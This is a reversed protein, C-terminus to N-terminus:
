NCCSLKCTKNHKRNRTSRRLVPPSSFPAGASLSRAPSQPPLVVSDSSESVSPNTSPAPVTPMSVTSARTSLNTSAHPVPMSDNEPVVTMQQQTHDAILLRKNRLIQNGAQSLLLYSRGDNPRPVIIKGQKWVKDNLNDRYRVLQGPHFDVRNQVHQNYHQKMKTVRKELILKYKKDNDTVLQTSCTPVKTRLDRNFLLRAPSPLDTAIPTNRYNLLALYMDESKYLMDKVTKIHREIFGNSQPYGASSLTHKIDYENCFKNFEHATYLPDGDSRMKEPLGFRACVRKLHEICHYSTPNLPLKEVEPYKSFYDTILQYKRGRLTFIDISIQQWARDPVNDPQLPEKNPLNRRELCSQCGRVMQDIDDNMHRWYVSKRALSKCRSQGQHGVHIRELLEPRLKRPIIIRTGFLLIDDVVFLNERISFYPRASEVCNKINNPWGTMMYEKVHSLTLDNMTEERLRIKFEDTCNLNAIFSHVMLEAENQLSVDSESAPRSVFARSLTDPIFLLKGPVYTLEVTYRLLRLLLRTIRPPAEAITQKNVINLLPKHDTHVEIQKGYVYQHFRECGFVISLLEKEIQAYRVQVPTLSRSAYAIPKGEQMLCAGLGYQSADCLLTVEKKPDYFGLVPTSTLIKKIEDLAKIQEYSWVFETDKVLLARLPKTITSMNPIFKALFNIMGLIRQVGTKDTPNPMDSIDKIKEPDPKVGDKSIVRGLYTVEHLGFKCKSDNLKVNAERSKLLATKLRSDHEEKTAGHVLIDDFVVEVGELGEYVQSMRKQFVENSSKLGFPLRTYRYRGILTNFTTLLSAKETLPVQWYGDRADLKSFLTSGGLKTMIEEDSPLPSHERIIARNLDTPDLCVRIQGNPKETVTMSNVWETAEDVKKVVQLKEMRHLEEIVKERLTFPTRRPAHVAPTSNEVLKIDYPQSICGVKEKSFVDAFEKTLEEYRFTNTIQEVVCETSESAQVSPYPDPIYTKFGDSKVEECNPESQVRCETVQSKDCKSEGMHPDETGGNHCQTHTQSHDLDKHFDIERREFRNHYDSVKFEERMEDRVASVSTSNPNVLGLQYCTHLGLVPKVDLPVVIFKSNVIGNNLRCDLNIEGSVPIHAGGYGSLKVSSNTLSQKTEFCKKYLSLPLVNAQAGTDIKFQVKVNEIEANEMWDVCGIDISNRNKCECNCNCQYECTAANSQTNSSILLGMFLNDNVAYDNSTSVASDQHLEHLKKTRCKKGYHGVLKCEHCIAKAAPCQSRSHKPGGCRGCEGTKPTKFRDGGSCNSQPKFNSSSNKNSKGHYQHKGIKDIAVPKQNFLNKVHDNATEVAKINQVASQLTLDRERLLKARTAQNYIGCVLRDRIFEESIDTQLRITQEVPPDAENMYRHTQEVVFKCKVAQTRLKTVFLDIHEGADQCMNNFKHREVTVNISSRYHETLAQKLHEYTDKQTDSLNNIVSKGEDGIFTSLCALRRADSIDGYLALMANELDTLWNEIEIAM